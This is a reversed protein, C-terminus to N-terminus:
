ILVLHDSWSLSICQRAFKAPVTTPIVPLTKHSPKSLQKFSHTFVQTGRRTRGDSQYRPHQLYSPAVLEVGFPFCLISCRCSLIGSLLFTPRGNREDELHQVLGDPM